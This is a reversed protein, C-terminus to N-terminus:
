PCTISFPLLIIGVRTQSVEALHPQPGLRHHNVEQGQGNGNRLKKVEGAQIDTLSKIFYM